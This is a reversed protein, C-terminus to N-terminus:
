NSNIMDSDPAAPMLSSILKEFEIETAAELYFFLVFLKTNLTILLSFIMNITFIQCHTYRKQRKNCM